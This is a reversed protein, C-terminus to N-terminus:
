RARRFQKPDYRCDDLKLRNGTMRAGRRKEMEIVRLREERRRELARFKRVAFVAVAVLVLIWGAVIAGCLLAVDQISM